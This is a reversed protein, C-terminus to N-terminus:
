ALARDAVKGPYFEQPYPGQMRLGIIWCILTPYITIHKELWLYSGHFFSLLIKVCANVEQHRGFHPIKMVNLITSRAIDMTWPQPIINSKNGKKKILYKHPSIIDYNKCDGLNFDNIKLMMIQGLQPGVACIGKLLYATIFTYDFDRPVSDCSVMGALPPIYYPIISPIINANV